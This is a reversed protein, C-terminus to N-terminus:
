LTKCMSSKSDPILDCTLKQMKKKKRRERKRERKRKRERERRKMEINITIEREEKKYCCPLGLYQKHFTQIVLSGYLVVNLIM